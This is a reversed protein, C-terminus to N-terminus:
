NKDKYKAYDEDSINLRRAVKQEDPTLTKNQEKVGSSPINGFEAERNERAELYGQRRAQEEKDGVTALMYGKELIQGLKSLPIENISVGSVSQIEQGIKTRIEQAKEPALKDLGYRTEFERVVNQSITAKVEDTAEGNSESTPGKIKSEVQKYLEPDSEIIEGLKKWNDINQKYEAIEKDRKNYASQLDKYRKEYENPTEQKEEEKVPETTEPEPTEEKPEEKIEDPM